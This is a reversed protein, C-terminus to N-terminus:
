SHTHTNATHTHKSHTNLATHARIGQLRRHEAPLTHAQRTSGRRGRCWPQETCSDQQVHQQRGPEQVATPSLRWCRKHGTRGSKLGSNSSVPKMCCRGIGEPMPLSTGGVAHLGSKCLCVCQACMCAPLAELRGRLQGANAVCTLIPRAWWGVGERGRGWRAGTEQVQM